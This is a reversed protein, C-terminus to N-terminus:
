PNRRARLVVDLVHRQGSAPSGAPRSRPRTEDTIITWSDDLLAKYDAPQVYSPPRYRTRPHRKRRPRGRTANRRFNAAVLKKAVALDAAPSLFYHRQDARFARCTSPSIPAYGTSESGTGSDLQAARDIAVQSIDVATVQWGQGAVLPRRCRVPASTSATGPPLEGTEDVLSPNVTDDM